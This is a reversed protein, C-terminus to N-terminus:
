PSLWGQEDLWAALLDAALRHGTATWHGDQVFYLPQGVAAWQAAMPPTLDFHPINQQQLFTTLRQNPADIQATAFTPNEQLFIAQEMESLAALRVIIDPSILVVAFQAGDATVESHLQRILAQTIEWARTLTAEDDAPPLYLASFPSPYAQGFTQRPTTTLILPELQQYLYSRQYLWGAGNILPRAWMSCGDIAGSLAPAYTLPTPHRQGECLVFHPAYWNIGGVTMRNGPLNDQLDNGLYLMLLVTDPAFRQGIERYFLLQQNTGWNIVGGSIVEYPQNLRQELQQSVTEAQAVQVAHVFSDGLMLLRRTGTPKPFPHEEDHMGLGNFRVRQSFEAGSILGVFHPQGTWGLTPHPSFFPNATVEYPPPLTLRVGIELTLLTLSISVGILALRSLYPTITKM